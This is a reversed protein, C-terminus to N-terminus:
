RRRLKAVDGETFLLDRGLRWGIGLARARKFVTTRHIGLLGAVEMSTRLEMLAQRKGLAYAAQLGWDVHCEVIYAGRTIEIGDGIGAMVRALIRDTWFNESSM